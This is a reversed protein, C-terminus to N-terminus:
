QAAPGGVAAAEARGDPEAGVAEGIADVLRRHEDEFAEPRHFARGRVTVLTRARGGADGAGGADVAGDAGDSVVVWLRRRSAYLATVLGATLLASGALLAPVQPRRSVQFGVWRRLEPFRVVVDGVQAAQGLRLVGGGESLLASTDLSNVTQATAGLRLDGRWQRYVVLPADDWPAGTFVPGDPGDPAYPTLIVELGVDPDVGPVKVAARFSGLPMAESFLFADHVVVGDVEVVIRPAYGWDLQHVKRGDIVLPRNGEVIGETVVGDADVVRVTSRFLTPQGAGPALPDRIWDVEFGTLDLRWGAHDDEGFWRGPRYAWYAVATDTFGPEGEVVGRQGEFTLLQGLVIAVLLVYFSLHFLLSGGERSWLGTEAAVQDEGRRVRWRRRALLREARDLAVAPDLSTTVVAELDGPSAARTLPPRSRRVLRVWARIRPVLCATLSLYLLLLLALFAASGYVDFAGAADLARAVGPGPGESGDLWAAVTSPVNPAQPVVTAVASQLALAGLLYLATRMRTLWRWAMRVADLAFV